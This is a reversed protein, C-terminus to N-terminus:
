YPSEAFSNAMQLLNLVSSPHEGVLVLCCTACGQSALISVFSILKISPVLFDYGYIICGRRRLM